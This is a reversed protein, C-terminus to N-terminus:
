LSVQLCNVATRIEKHCGSVQLGNVETGNMYYYFRLCYKQNLDLTASFLTATALYPSGSASAVAYHGAIVVIM